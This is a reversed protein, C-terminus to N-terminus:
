SAQTISRRFALRAVPLAAPAECHFTLAGEHNLGELKNGTLAAGIM